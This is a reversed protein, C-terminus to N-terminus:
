TGHKKRFTKRYIAPAVGNKGKFWNSFYFEDKFGLMAALVKVPCDSNELYQRALFSRQEQLYAYPSCNWDKQFIRLTQPVSKRILKALKELSINKEWNMDLYEKLRIGEPSKGAEPHTSRRRDIAALIRHVALPFETPLDNQHRRLIDAANLFEKEIRFNHFYVVGRLRYADCLANMLPGSLNFWIKEWPDASDSHDEHPLPPQLLYVDGEAPTYYKDGWRLHGKGRIVYELVYLNGPSNRVIRYSPDPHTIGALLIQLPADPHPMPMPFFTEKYISVIM